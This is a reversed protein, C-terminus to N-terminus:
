DESGNWANSINQKGEQRDTRGDMEQESRPARGAPTRSGTTPAGAVCGGVGAITTDTDAGAAAASDGAGTGTAAAAASGAARCSAGREDAAEEVACASAGESPSVGWAGRRPVEEAASGAASRGSCSLV